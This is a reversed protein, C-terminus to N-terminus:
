GLRGYWDAIPPAALAALAAGAALYPGFPIPDTRRWGLALAAAAGVGGLLATLAAAVGLYRWGIATLVMGIVAALKVDGMGMARPSAFAVVLVPGAFALVGLAGRLLDVEPSRASVLAVAASFGVFSPYTLRNPIIRHRADIWAAALLVALLAAVVAAVMADDHAVSALAFLVATAVLAVPARVKRGAETGWRADGGGDPAPVPQPLRGVALAVWWGTALGLLGFLAARVLPSM